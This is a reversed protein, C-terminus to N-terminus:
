RRPRLAVDSGTKVPLSPQLKMLARDKGAPRRCSTEKARGAPAPASRRARGTGAIGQICRLLGGDVTKGLEGVFEQARAQETALRRATEIEPARYPAALAEQQVTEEGGQWEGLLAPHVEMGEKTFQVLPHKALRRTAIGQGGAQVFQECTASQEAEIFEM